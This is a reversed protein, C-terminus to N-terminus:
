CNILSYPFGSLYRNTLVIANYLIVYIPKNMNSYQSINHRQDDKLLMNRQLVLGDTSIVFNHTFAISTKWYNM